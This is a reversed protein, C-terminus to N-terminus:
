FGLRRFRRWLCLASHGCVRGRSHITSPPHLGYAPHSSYSLFGRRLRSLRCATGWSIYPTAFIINGEKNERLVIGKFGSCGFGLVGDSSSRLPAFSNWPWLPGNRVRPRLIPSAARLNSSASPHNSRFHRTLIGRLTGSVQRRSPICNEVPHVRPLRFMSISSPSSISTKKSLLPPLRSCILTLGSATLRILSAKDLPISPIISSASCRSLADSSSSNM